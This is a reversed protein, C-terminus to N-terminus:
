FTIGEIQVEVVHAWHKGTVFFRHRAADFAIGNLVGEPEKQEQAALASFDIWDRVQGTRGDIRAIRNAHWVNAYIDGGICELENLNTVAEQGAYVELSRTVAFTQPDLYRLRNTGDSLILNAGDHALGWGEGEYHFEKLKRLTRLEYVLGTKSLWTLQYIKGGFITLGEGFYDGSLDIKQLVRGSDLEVKRVSSHGIEGTSEYLFGEFYELGQTFAHADHPYTHLVKSGLM